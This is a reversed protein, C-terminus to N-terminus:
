FRVGATVGFTRPRGSEGLFGSPAGPFAFAVPVYFSDFANRIWAEGFLYKGRVGARFNALSYAEQEALNADDYKFAGYVVIEGHGYLTAATTLERTLHAGFAATYDPTNPIENGSVDFAQRSANDGFRANTYGFSGFVDMNRHARANVELEVGKSSASGVNAIFFQAPSAPNPVNLQLDQWDIWFAAASLRVRGNMASSKVGGELHWAFEEDYVESGAPSAPNFGGAKFGRAASAYLTHAPQLRYVAAFQPSVTSFTLEDDITNNSFFPLPPASATTLLADKTERDFRAGAVLDLKEAVTFTGQGYLSIGLDDLEADPTTEVIPFFLSPDLVFPSYSNVALQEYNQTFLFAGAQWALAVRDAVKVPAAAASAVRVEQTFQFDEEANERTVAPVPLYDLDTADFTKWRVFGTTTSLTVRGGERRTLVSASLIDRDTQGEFDRATTHPTDRLGALDSLAYDGDRAREGSLIFRAEWNSAPTWLLQAKGSTAERYDLDNGTITNETFGDRQAHSISGGFALTSGLPGSASGRIERADYNGFPVAAQGSWRTLSPRATAVNILGGLTNRGFLASQPGRVFEVQEVDMLEVNSANANLMPVGDIFTTISPNAPSAGIGRFRPNTLKRATFESFYSNASYIGADSITSGLQLWDIPVVTVSVPLRQVDAPEKQATVTVPPLIIPGSQGTGAGPTTQAQAAPATLCFAITFLSVFRRSSM